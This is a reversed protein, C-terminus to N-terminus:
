GSRVREGEPRAARRVGLGAILFGAGFLEWHYRDPPRGFLATRFDLTFSSFIVLAGALIAAVNWPGVAPRGGKARVRLLAAVGAILGLSVLVPALVPGTWPVPILFLVDWEFLSRPWGILVWLWGYYAIDWVAFALWFLLGGEWRDRGALFGAAVLMVLTAAERAVEIALLHPPLIAAGEQVFPGGHTLVRLYVVVAAEVFAMAIAFVVMWSVVRKM